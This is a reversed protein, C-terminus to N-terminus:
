FVGPYLERLAVRRQPYHGCDDCGIGCGPTVPCNGCAEPLEIKNKEQMKKVVM